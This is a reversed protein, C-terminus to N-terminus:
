LKYKKCYICSVTSFNNSFGNYKMMDNLGRKAGYSNLKNVVSKEFQEKNKYTPFKYGIVEGKGMKLEQIARAYRAHM